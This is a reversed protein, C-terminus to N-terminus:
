NLPRRKIAYAIVGRALAQISNEPLDFSLVFGQREATTFIGPCVRRVFAGVTEGIYVGQGVISAALGVRVEEVLEPPCSPDIRQRQKAAEARREARSFSM